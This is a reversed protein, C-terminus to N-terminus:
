RRMDPPLTPMAIRGVARAGLTLDLRDLQIKLGNVDAITVRRPVATPGDVQRLIGNPDKTCKSYKVYHEGPGHTWFEQRDFIGGGVHASLDVGTATKSPKEDTGYSFVAALRDGPNKGNATLKGANAPRRPIRSQVLSEYATDAARQQAEAEARAQRAAAIDKASTVDPDSDMVLRGGDVAEELNNLTARDPSGLIYVPEIPIGPQPTPRKM